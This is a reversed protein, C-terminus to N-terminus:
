SHRSGGLPLRSHAQWRGVVRTRLELETLWLSLPLMPALVDLVGASDAGRAVRAVSLHPTAVKAGVRNALRVIDMAPEPRVAVVVRGRGDPEFVLLQALTVDLPAQRGAVVALLPLSRQAQDPSLWPYGLSIHAPALLGVGPLGAVADLLGAAAPVPLQLATRDVGIWDPQGAAPPGSSM